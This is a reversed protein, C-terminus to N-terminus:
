AKRRSLHIVLEEFDERCEFVGCAFAVTLNAAKGGAFKGNDAVIEVTFPRTVGDCTVEAGGFGNITVRGVSQSLQLELGAFIADGTCTVTGSVLASGARTFSATPNVTVDIEPPPPIEDITLHLEGGNGGGDGQDDFVLIAYTTGATALWGVTDPGCTVLEFSGPSGVAVAVGALYSSGTTDAVLGADAAPTVEYWVSADTAPAGCNTNVEEDTADTTAETTDASVSVPLTGVDLAIRGAYTDNAPPAALVPGPGLVLAGSAVLVAM